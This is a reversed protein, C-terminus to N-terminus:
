VSYQLLDHFRIFPDIDYCELERVILLLVMFDYLRSLVTIVNSSFLLYSFFWLFTCVSWCPLYCYFLLITYVFSSRLANSKVLLWSYLWLSHIFPEIGWATNLSVLLSYCYWLVTYGVWYWVYFKLERALPWAQLRGNANLRMMKWSPSCRLTGRVITFRNSRWFSGQGEKVQSSGIYTGCAINSFVLQSTLNM